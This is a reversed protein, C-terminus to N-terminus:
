RVSFLNARNTKPLLDQVTEGVRCCDATTCLILSRITCFRVSLSSPAGNLMFPAPPSGFPSSTPQVAQIFKLQSHPHPAGLVPAQM